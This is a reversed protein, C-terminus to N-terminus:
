KFDVNVRGSSAHVSVPIGGGNLKGNVQDDEMTGNFNELQGTKVKMGSLRLDLGKGKPLDIEISGGSNNVKVYKGLEKFSIEIHGGSTSTELSCSLDSFDISGGSTSAILEGQIEKGNISGGSTSARIDGKMEKLSMSGGSTNLRIKGECNKAAISGGSTSMDIDDKVEMLHISGGSTRGRVKGTVKVVNLSGGSTSFDQSGSLNELSISGGSTSLDTSVERPVYIKFSINLAKKWDTIKSKTKAIASLKGGSATVELEYKDDLRAQIDERSLDDKGNNSTIYVEIRAESAVGAVSISGGSTRAEVNKISEGSLSKTLYPQKSKDQAKLVLISLVFLSFLFFKKMIIM